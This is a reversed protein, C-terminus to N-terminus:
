REEDPKRLWLFRLAAWVLAIPLAGLLLAYTWDPLMVFSVLVLIAPAPIAPPVPNVPFSILIFVSPTFAVAIVLARINARTSWALKRTLEWTVM